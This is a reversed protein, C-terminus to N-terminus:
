ENLYEKFLQLLAKMNLPKSLYSNAGLKKAKEISEEFSLASLIIIPVSLHLEQRIHKIVAFGDVNPMMLDCIVLDYDNKDILKIAVAGDVAEDKLIKEKILIKVLIDRSRLDDDVILVKKM